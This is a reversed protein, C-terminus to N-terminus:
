LEDEDRWWILEKILAYAIFLVLFSCLADLMIEVLVEGPPIKDPIIGFLRVTVGM